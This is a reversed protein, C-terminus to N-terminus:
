AQVGPYTAGLVSNNQWTNAGVANRNDKAVDYAPVGTGTAGPKRGLAYWLAFAAFGLAAYTTIKATSM